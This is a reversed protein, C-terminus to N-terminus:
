MFDLDNSFDCNQHDNDGEMPFPYPEEAEPRSPLAELITGYASPSVEPRDACGSMLLVSGFLLVFFSRM